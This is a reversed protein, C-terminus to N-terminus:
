TEKSPNTQRVGGGPRGVPGRRRLGGWNRNRQPKTELRHAWALVAAYIQDGLLRRLVILAPILLAQSLEDTTDTRSLATPLETNTVIRLFSDLEDRAQELEDTPVTAAVHALASFRFEALAKALEVAFETECEPKILRPHNSATGVPRVLGAAAALELAAEKRPIEGSTLLLTLWTLASLVVSAASEKGGRLNREMANALRNKPAHKLRMAFAEAREFATDAPREIQSQIWDFAWSYAARLGTESIPYGRLFLRLAVQELPRGRRVLQAVAAREAATEVPLGAKQWRTRQFRSIEGARRSGTSASGKNTLPM